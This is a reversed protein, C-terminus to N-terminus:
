TSAKERWSSNICSAAPYHIDIAKFFVFVLACQKRLMAFGDEIEKLSLKNDEPNEDMLTFYTDIEEPVFSDLKGAYGAEIVDHHEHKDLENDGDKDGKALIDKADGM